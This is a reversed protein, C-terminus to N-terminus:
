AGVRTGAWARVWDVFRDADADTIELSLAIFGRRAVYFGADLAAFFFLEKRRDDARALDAGSRIPGGTGHITMMSGLGTVVMELGAGTFVENLAHRLRDGRVDVARLADATLVQELAAVGAAMSAVNNNFTGAHGLAGGGPGDFHGMVDRRGGFAGFTLGGALYKGLTTLDPLIGFRQQAGGPSLRSTMVEDFVLLAGHRDCGARLAALLDPDGPICGASGQVPEVLVAAIEPGRRAFADELADVDNYPLVLWDHPVTVPAPQADFTLVGGHYGHEFVVITRRGTHHVAAALAM